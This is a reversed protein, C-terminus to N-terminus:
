TAARVRRPRGVFHRLVGNIKKLIAVSVTLDPARANFSSEFQKQSGPDDGTALFQKLVDGAVEGEEGLAQLPRLLDRIVAVKEKRDDELMDIDELVQMLMTGIEAIRARLDTGQDQPAISLVGLAFMKFVNNFQELDLPAMPGSLSRLRLDIMEGHGHVLDKTQKEDMASLTLLAAATVWDDSMNILGLALNELPDSERLLSQLERNGRLFEMAARAPPEIAHFAEHMAGALSSDEFTSAFLEFLTASGDALEYAVAANEDEAMNWLLLAIERATRYLDIAEAMNGPSTITTTLKASKSAIFMGLPSNVFHTFGYLDQVAKVMSNPEVRAVHPQALLRARLDDSAAVNKIVPLLAEALRSAFVPEFTAVRPVGAVLPRLEREAIGADCCGRAVSVAIMLLGDAIANNLMLNAGAEPLTGSLAEFLVTSLPHNVGRMVNLASGVVTGLREDQKTAQTVFDFAAWQKQAYDLLLSRIYNLAVFSDLPPLEHGMLQGLCRATLGIRFAPLAEITTDYPGDIIQNLILLFDPSNPLNVGLFQSIQTMSVGKQIANRLLMCAQEILNDRVGYNSVDQFEWGTEGADYFTAYDATMDGAQSKLLYDDPNTFTVRQPIAREARPMMSPYGDGDADNLNLNSLSRDNRLLVSMTSSSSGTTTTFGRTLRDGIEDTKEQVKMQKVFNLLSTFHDVILLSRQYELVFERRSKRGDLLQFIVHENDVPKWKRLRHHPVAFLERRSRDMLYFTTDTITLIVEQLGESERGPVVTLSEYEVAGFLKNKLAERLFWLQLTPRDKHGYSGLAEIVKKRRPKDKTEHCLWPPFYQLLERRKNKCEKILATIVDRKQHNILLVLALMATYNYHQFDFEPDWVMTQAQYYNFAVDSPRTFYCIRETWFRRLLYFTKTFPNYEILSRNLPVPLRIDTPNSYLAYGLSGTLSFLCPEVGEIEPASESCIDDIIDGSHRKSDVKRSITQDSGLCAIEITVKPPFLLLEITSLASFRRLDANPELIRYWKSKGDSAPLVLLVFYDEPVNMKLTITLYIVVDKGTLHLPIMGAVSPIDDREYVRARFQATGAASM